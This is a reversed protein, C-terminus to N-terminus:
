KADAASELSMFLDNFNDKKTKELLENPKGEAIISGQNLLYVYDCKQAEEMYSTSIIIKVGQTKYMQLLEWLEGRSIPDVGNTPEDLLLLKPSALLSCMLGLKKYMGGSLKKANRNEFKKLKTIELLIEKKELFEEENLDYITKFFNLHEEISLDAYLSQTEPMYAIESSKINQLEIKGSDPSYLGTICRFVTTKGAGEPGIIGFIANEKSTFDLNVNHLAKVSNFKKNLNKIILM